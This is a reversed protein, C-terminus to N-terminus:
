HMIQCDTEMSMLIADEKPYEYFCRRIGDEAFGQRRYFAIAAENSQRVDLLIKAIQKERCVKLIESFLCSGAGHRRADSRVAIRAIEAEDLVYYLIAYGMVREGSWEHLTLLITQRQMWSEQIAQESWADSFIEKELQAIERIENEKTYEAYWKQIQM